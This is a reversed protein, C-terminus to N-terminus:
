EDESLRVQKKDRQGWLHAVKAGKQVEWSQRSVHSMIYQASGGEGHQNLIEEFLL